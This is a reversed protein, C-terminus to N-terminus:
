VTSSRPEFACGMRHSIEVADLIGAYRAKGAGKRSFYALEGFAGSMGRGTWEVVRSFGIWSPPEGDFLAMDVYCAPGGLGAKTGGADALYAKTFAFNAQLEAPSGFEARRQAAERIAQNASLEGAQTRNVLRDVRVQRRERADLRIRPGVALVMRAGVHGNGKDVANVKGHLEISRALFDFTVSRARTSLDRFAAAGDNLAFLPLFKFATDYLTSHFQRLREVAAAAHPSSPDFAAERLMDGYGLLDLWAVGSM